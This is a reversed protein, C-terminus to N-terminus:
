PEGEVARGAAASAAALAQVGAEMGDIEARRQQLDSGRALAARAREGATYAARAAAQYQAIAAILRGDETSRWARRALLRAEARAHLEELTRLRLPAPSLGSWAVGSHRRAEMHHHEQRVAEAALEAQMM